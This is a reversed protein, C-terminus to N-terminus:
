SARNFIPRPIILDHFGSPTPEKPQRDKHEPLGGQILEFVEAGLATKGVEHVAEELARAEAEWAKFEEPTQRHLGM